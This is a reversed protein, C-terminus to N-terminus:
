CILCSNRHKTDWKLHEKTEENCQGFSKKWVKLKFEQHNLEKLNEEDKSDKPRYIEWINITPKAVTTNFFDMLKISCESCPSKKDM